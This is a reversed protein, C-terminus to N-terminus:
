DQSEKGTLIDLGQGVGDVAEDAQKLRTQFVAQNIYKLFGHKSYHLSLIQKQKKGEEGENM